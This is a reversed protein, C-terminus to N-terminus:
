FLCSGANWFLDQNELKGHELVNEKWAYGECYVKVRGLVAKRRLLIYFRFGLDQVRSGITTELKDM